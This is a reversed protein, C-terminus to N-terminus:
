ATFLKKRSRYYLATFCGYTLLVALWILFGASTLAGPWLSFRSGNLAGYHLIRLVERGAYHIVGLALSIYLM